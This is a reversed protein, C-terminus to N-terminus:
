WPCHLKPSQGVKVALEYLLVKDGVNITKGSVKRDFYDKQRKQARTINDRVKKSSSELKERLNSTYETEDRILGLCEGFVVDLPLRLEHGFMLMAPSFGITENVSCRYAMMVYPIEVDWNRQDNAVHKSLMNLLTSNFKEEQVDCQPHYATTRQKKSGFLANMEEFVHSECDRGQDSLISYPAGLRSIFEEVIKKAITKAKHNRLAYAETWKTFYDFIVVIYQNGRSTKPLPGVIDLAVKELPAGTKMSVLPARSLKTPNKKSACAVCEACCIEM